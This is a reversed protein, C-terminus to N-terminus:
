LLAHGPFARRLYQHFLPVTFAIDGHAPSYIMGKQIIAQRRPGLAQTREGLRAAVDASRYPGDGLGAMALVYETEKPTLRDLRVQFFGDDLRRLARDTALRVHDVNIPSADAINWSQYGWEQLFFPYGKTELMISQVADAKVTEGEAEIPEKIARSASQQDLPGIAPFVFLREAYSKAEGALAATQPLGAGFFLIPLRKQSSRHLAVILAALEPSTLYQVEDVFLSWARGAQAAAEGICAFLESLDTELDGSDALGPRPDVSVAVEGISVKFTKVVAALASLATFAAAQASQVFSLRRLAVAMQPALLRLLGSGEPSEIVSTEHGNEVAIEQLRVLLVTKGVGRLGLLMFSQNPRRQVARRIAITADEIIRDRGALEPPPTGAGPAFPNRVPDM